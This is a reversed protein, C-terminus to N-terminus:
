RWSILEECARGLAALDLDRLQRAPQLDEGALEVCRDHAQRLEVALELVALVLPRHEGVQALGAAEGGVRLDREGVTRVAVM